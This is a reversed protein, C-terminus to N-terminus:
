KRRRRVSMSAESPTSCVLTEGLQLERFRAYPMLEEDPGQWFRRNNFLLVREERQRGSGRACCGYVVTWHAEDTGPCDVCVILPHGQQLTKKITEFRLKRHRLRVTVNAKKLAAHLRETPTGTDPCPACWQYFARRDQERSDPYLLKVVAWGAAVGCSFLDIQTAPSVNLCVSEDWQRLDPPSGVKVAPLRVAKALRGWSWKGLEFLLRWDAPPFPPYVCPLNM